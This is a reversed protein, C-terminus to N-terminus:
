KRKPLSDINQEELQHLEKMKNKMLERNVQDKDDQSLNSFTLSM